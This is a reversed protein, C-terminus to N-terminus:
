RAAGAVSGPAVPAGGGDEGPATAALIGALGVLMLFAIV